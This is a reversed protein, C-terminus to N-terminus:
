GTADVEAGAPDHGHGVLAVVADLDEVGVAREVVLDPIVLSSIVVSVTMPRPSLPIAGALKAM